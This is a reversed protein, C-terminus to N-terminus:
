ESDRKGERGGERQEERGGEGRDTGGERVEEESLLAFDLLASKHLPSTGISATEASIPFILVESPVLFDAPLIQGGPLSSPALDANTNVLQPKPSISRTLHRINGPPTAGESAIVHLNITSYSRKKGMKHHPLRVVSEALM